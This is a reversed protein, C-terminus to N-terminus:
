FKRSVRMQNVYRISSMFTKKKHSTHEDQPSAYKSKVFLQVIYM